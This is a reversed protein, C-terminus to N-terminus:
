LLNKSLLDYYNFLMSENNSDILLISDDDILELRVMDINFNNNIYEFVKFQNITKVKIM